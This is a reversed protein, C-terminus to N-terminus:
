WHWPPIMLVMAVGGWAPHGWAILASCAILWVGLAIDILGDAFLTKFLDRELTKLQAITSM